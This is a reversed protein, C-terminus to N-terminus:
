KEEFENMFEDFYEFTDYYKDAGMLNTFDIMKVLKEKVSKHM